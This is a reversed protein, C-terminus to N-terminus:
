LLGALRTASTVGWWAGIILSVIGTFVLLGTALRPNRAARSLPVGVLGTLLGM